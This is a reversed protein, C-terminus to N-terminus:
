SSISAPPALSMNCFCPKDISPSFLLLSVVSCYILGRASELKKKTRRAFQFNLNGPSYNESCPDYAAVYKSKFSAKGRSNVGLDCQM